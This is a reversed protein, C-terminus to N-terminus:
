ANVIGWYDVVDKYNLNSYDKDPHMIVVVDSNDICEQPDDFQNIDDELNDFTEQIKDHGNVSVGLAILDKIM